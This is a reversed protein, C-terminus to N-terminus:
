PRHQATIWADVECRRWLRRRGVKYTRPGKGQVAWWRWTSAPIGTLAQLDFSNLYEREVNGVSNRPEM